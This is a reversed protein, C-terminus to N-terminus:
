ITKIQGRVDPLIPNNQIEIAFCPLTKLATLIFERDKGDPVANEGFNM